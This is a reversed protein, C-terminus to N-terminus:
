FIEIISQFIRLHHIQKNNLNCNSSKPNSKSQYLEILFFIVNKTTQVINKIKKKLQFNYTNTTSIILYVTMVYLKSHTTSLQEYNVELM